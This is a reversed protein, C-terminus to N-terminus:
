PSGKGWCEIIGDARLGCTHSGAADIAVFAGSPPSAQGDFNYGWCQIEGNVRLACWHGEGAAVATFKGEPLGPELPLTTSTSLEGQVNGTTTGTTSAATIGATNAPATDLMAPRPVSNGGSCAALVSISIVMAACQPLRKM